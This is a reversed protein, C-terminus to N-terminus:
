KRFSKEPQLICRVSRVGTCFYNPHIYVKISSILSVM